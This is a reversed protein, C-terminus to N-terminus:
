DRVGATGDPSFGCSQNDMGGQPPSMHLEWSREVGFVAARTDRILDRRSVGSPEFEERM